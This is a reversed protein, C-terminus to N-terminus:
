PGLLSIIQGTQKSADLDLIADVVEATSVRGPFTDPALANVRVGIDWFENALHYTSYNLAAKSIGYLTQGQDPYVFLGASSSINIINRNHQQNGTCDSQWLLRAVAVSLRLPALVNTKLVAEAADLGTATLVPAWARIAAGHILLDINGFQAKVETVVRDVAEPECIDARISHVPHENAAILRTPALPDVFRQDQAAFQVPNRNHVAIITYLDHCREIFATGLLGSAGTLLCTRKM